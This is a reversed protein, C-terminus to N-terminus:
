PLCLKSVPGARKQSQEANVGFSAPAPRRSLRVVLAPGSAAECKSKCKLQQAHVDFRPWPGISLIFPTKSLLKHSLTIRYDTM